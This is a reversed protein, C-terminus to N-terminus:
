QEALDEVALARRRAGYARVKDPNKQRWQRHYERIRERNAERYQRNYERRKERNARRWQRASEAHCAKCRSDRGDSNHKNKAFDELPKIQGCETCKRLGYPRLREAEKPSTRKRLPRLEEGRRLQEYHTKCLGRCYLKHECGEFSCTKSM